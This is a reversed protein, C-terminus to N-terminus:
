KSRFVESLKVLIRYVITEKQWRLFLFYQVAHFHLEYYTYQVRYLCILVTYTSEVIISEIKKILLITIFIDRIVVYSYM